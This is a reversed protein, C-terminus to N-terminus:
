EFNQEDPMLIHQFPQDRQQEAYPKFANIVKKYGVGLHRRLYHVIFQAPQIDIHIHVAL